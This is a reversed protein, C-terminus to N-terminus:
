RTINETPAANIYRTGISFVSTGYAYPMIDHLVSKESTEDPAGTHPILHLILPEDPYESM